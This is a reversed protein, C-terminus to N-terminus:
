EAVTDALGLEQNDGYPNLNYTARILPSNKHEFDTIAVGEELGTLVANTAGTTELKPFLSAVHLRVLTDLVKRRHVSNASTDTLIPGTWPLEIVTHIKALGEAGIHAGTLEDLLIACPIGDELLVRRRNSKIETEGRKFAISNPLIDTIQSISMPVAVLRKGDSGEREYAIPVTIKGVGDPARFHVTLM